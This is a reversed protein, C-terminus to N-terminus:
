QNGNDLTRDINENENLQPNTLDPAGATGGEGEIQNQGAFQQANALLQQQQAEQIAGEAIRQLYINFIQVQNPDLLGFQDSALFQQLIQLHGQFGEFPMGGPMENDMISAIAEEAQILQQTSTPTPPVMFEDGDQGWSEVFKRLLRYIKDPNTIRLQIALPSILVGMINGLAAQLNGKTVNFINAKFTFQFQGEIMGTDSITQYPDEGEDMNGTIKIKKDDPLFRKNLEHMQRYVQTLGMFFRRLIREPRAEAQSILANIGGATRLASSKGEPIKGAQLDGVMTLRERMQGLVTIMNLGFSQSQNPINPFNFDNAPDGTPYGEGPNLTIVEPKVLSSSRYFFFPSNALTGADITQDLIEKTIDHIGEGLELYSIGIRRGKVPILSAEAFPRRPPNSPYMETLLKAKLITKTELIYWWIVDEAIGDGDIDFIDFCMLRTYTNHEVINTRNENENTGQFRDKQDKMEDYTRDRATVSMETLDEETVLDYFGSKKLRRIEDLTPFDKMIVHSSGGPNSPSPIQLNEARWPHLVEDIDKVIPRPGDFVNVDRQIIMEVKDDQKRTYFSIEVEEDERNTVKWDWGNNSDSIKLPNPFEAAVSGQFYDRPVIADPIATLIRQDSIEREERIWPIFVTYVGDNIFTEALDGVFEEGPMDVFLQHHLLNDVNEIKEEEEKRIPTAGVPKGFGIVANHLTDQMRLSDTMLDPLTVDSADEWPLAMRETWLRFKAYRQLRDDMFETRSQIDKTYFDRIRTSIEDKDFKFSTKRERKRRIGFEEQISAFDPM